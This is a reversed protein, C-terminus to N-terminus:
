AHPTDQERPKHRTHLIRSQRLAHHESFQHPARAAYPPCSFSHILHKSSSRLPKPMLVSWYVVAVRSPPFHHLIASCPASRKMAFHIVACFALAPSRCATTHGFTVPLVLSLIAWLLRARAPESAMTSQGWTARVQIRRASTTNDKETTVNIKNHTMKTKKEKGSAAARWGITRRTRRYAHAAVAM